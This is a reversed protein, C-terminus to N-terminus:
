RAEQILRSRSFYAFTGLRHFHGVCLWNDRPHEAWALLYCGRASCLERQGIFEKM